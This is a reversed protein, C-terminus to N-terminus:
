ACTVPKRASSTAGSIRPMFFITLSSLRRRAKACRAGFWGLRQSSASRAARVACNSLLVAHISVARDSLTRSARCVGQTSSMSVVQQEAVLGAGLDAVVRGLRPPGAMAQVGVPDAVEAQHEIDFDLAAFGVRGFVAQRSQPQQDFPQREFLARGQNAAVVGEAVFLHHRFHFLDLLGIQEFEALRGPDLAQDFPVPRAVVPFVDALAEIGGFAFEPEGAPAM